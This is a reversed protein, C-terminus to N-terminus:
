TSQRFAFNCLWCCCPLNGAKRKLGLVRQEKKKETEEKPMSNTSSPKWRCGLCYDGSHGNSVSKLDKALPKPGVRRFGQHVFAREIKGLEKLTWCPAGYFAKCGISIELFDRRKFRFMGPMNCNFVVEDPAKAWEELVTTHNAIRPWMLKGFRISKYQGAKRGPWHTMLLGGDSIMEPVFHYGPGFSEDLEKCIAVIGHRSLPTTSKLTFTDENTYLCGSM